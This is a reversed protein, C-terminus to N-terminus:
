RTREELRCQIDNRESKLAKNFGWITSSHFHPSLENSGVPIIGNVLSIIRASTSQKKSMFSKTMYFYPQSMADQTTCTKDLSWAYLIGELNEGCNVEIADMLEVFDQLWNPKVEFTRGSETKKVKSAM